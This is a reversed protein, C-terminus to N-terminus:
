KGVLHPIEFEFPVEVDRSKAPYKIVLKSPPGNATGQQFHYTAGWGKGGGGGNMGGQALARGNADVLSVDFKMMGEANPGENSVLMKVLYEGDDVTMVNIMFRLNDLDRRINNAALANDIELSGQGAALKVRVSGKLHAARTDGFQRDLPVDVSFVNGDMCDFDSRDRPAVAITEGDEDTALAVKAERAHSLVQLRPEVYVTLRNIARGGFTDDILVMFPGHISAPSRLSQQHDECLESSRPFNSPALHTQKNLRRMATWFPVKDVDITVTKVRRHDDWIGPEATLKAHAQKYLSEYVTQVPADAFHLTVLSAPEAIEAPLSSPSRVSTASDQGAARASLIWITLLRIVRTCRSSKDSKMSTKTGPRIAM